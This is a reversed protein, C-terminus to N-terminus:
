LRMWKAWWIAPTRDAPADANPIPQFLSM